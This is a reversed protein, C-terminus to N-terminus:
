FRPTLGIKRAERRMGEINVRKFWSLALDALQSIPRWDGHLGALTRCGSSLNNAQTAYFAAVDPLTIKLSTSEGFVDAAQVTLFTKGAKEVFEGLMEQAEFTRDTTQM